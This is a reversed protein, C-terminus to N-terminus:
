LQTLNKPEEVMVIMMIMMMMMVEAEYAAFKYKNEDNDKQM